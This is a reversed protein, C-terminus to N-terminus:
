LVPAERSKAAQAQLYPELFFDCWTANLLKLRWGHKMRVQGKGRTSSPAEHGFKKPSGPMRYTVHVYTKQSVIKSIDLCGEAM